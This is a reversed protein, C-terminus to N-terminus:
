VNGNGHLGLKKWLFAFTHPCYWNLWYIVKDRKPLITNKLFARRNMKMECRLVKIVKKEVRKYNPAGYIGRLLSVATWCVQADLADLARNYQQPILEKMQRLIFLSNLREKDFRKGVNSSNVVSNAHVIYHYVNKNNVLIKKCYKLYELDFYLDELPEKEKNFTLSNGQFISVKYAKNWTYGEFGCSVFLQYFAEEKNLTGSGQDLSKFIIEGTEREKQYGVISLDYEGDEVGKILAEVYEPEVYDDSDIFTVYKTTVFKMGYNRTNSLGSNQKNILTFKNNGDIIQQIKKVTDDTSGDNIILVQFKGSTQNKLSNLCKKITKSANYTPIVVTLITNESM